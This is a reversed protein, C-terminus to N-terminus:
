VHEIPLFIFFKMVSYAFLVYFLISIVLEYSYSLFCFILLMSLPILVFSLIDLQQFSLIQFLACFLFIFVLLTLTRLRKNTQIKATRGKQIMAIFAFILLVSLAMMIFWFDKIQGGWNQAIFNLKHESGFIYVLTFYYLFPISYGIFGILVERLSIRKSILFPVWFLPVTFILLPTFTSAMGLCLFANFVTARVDEKQSSVFLQHLMMILLAHTILVGNLSYSASFLSMLVVYVLAVLYTNREHFHNRNVLYNIGIANFFVVGSALVLSLSINVSFYPTWFGFDPSKYISHFGFVYNLIQYTLLYLPLLLLVITKNGLFIRVM